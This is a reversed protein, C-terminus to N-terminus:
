SRAMRKRLVLGAIGAALLAYTGPEPVRATAEYTLDAMEINDAVPTLM